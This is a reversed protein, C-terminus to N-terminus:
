WPPACCNPDPAPGGSFVYAIIYTADSINLGDDGNADGSCLPEPPPGGKFIYNIMYVADSINVAEDGNADGCVADPTEDLTAFAYVLGDSGFTVCTINAKGDCDVDGVQIHMVDDAVSYSWEETGTTGDIVYVNQDDSGAIAELFGDGDVDYAMTHNVEGGTPFTWLVNGDSGRLAVVETTTPVIVDPIKDGDIDGGGMRQINSEVDVPQAWMATQSAGNIMIVQRSYPTVGAAVDMIDDDNVDMPEVHEVVDPAAYAWIFSGDLGDIVVVRDGTPGGGVAVVVDPPGTGNM